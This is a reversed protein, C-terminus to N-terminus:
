FLCMEDGFDQLDLVQDDLIKIGLRKKKKAGANKSGLGGGEM